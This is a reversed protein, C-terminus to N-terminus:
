DPGAGASGARDSVRADLWRAAPPAFTMAASWIWADPEAGARRPRAAFRSRFRTATPKPHARQLATGSKIWRRLEPRPRHGRGAPTSIQGDREFRLMWAQHNAGAALFTVEEFPVGVYDSLQRTTNQVSHCLGVVRQQPTGAYTVWWLMAMPNTHELLWAEPCVAAMDAAIGLM